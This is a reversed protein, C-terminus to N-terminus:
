RRASPRPEARVVRTDGATTPPQFTILELRVDAVGSRDFGLRVAAAYSLDIMRRGVFPGRDNVRVIVQRGSRRHTVRVYSPLPLTPHAATLRYMNYVEGNATRRGHFPRGYWSAIGEQEFDKLATMPIYRKGDISYPRNAWNSLRERHPVPDPLRALERRSPSPRRQARRRTSKDQGAKRGAAAAPADAADFHSDPPQGLAMPSPPAHSEPDLGACGALGM